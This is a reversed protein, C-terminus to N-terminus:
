RAVPRSSSAGHLSPEPNTGQAQELAAQTIALQRALAERTHIEHQLAENVQALDDASAQIRDELEDTKDLAQAVEGTQVTEPVRKKLVTNILCLEAASQGVDDQIAVNQDLARALANSSVSESHHTSMTM